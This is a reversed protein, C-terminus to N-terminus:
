SIVKLIEPKKREPMAPISKPYGVIIPAWIRYGEPIGLEALLEPDRAEAGQAVWCTGLGKSAASLMLYSAALACDISVTPQKIKGIICVLAPANYFVNFNENKLTELYGQMPSNPNAEIGAIIVAKSADSIRKMMEKSNVIVFKWQQRNSANPAKIGDAIMEKLVDTSVQSDKYDRVSRRNQLLEDFNM